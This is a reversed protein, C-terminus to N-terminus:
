IPMVSLHEIIYYKGDAYRPAPTDVIKWQGNMGFFSFTDFEKFATDKYKEVAERIAADRFAAMGGGRDGTYEKELVGAVLFPKIAEGEHIKRCFLTNSM